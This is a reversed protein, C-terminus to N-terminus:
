TTGWLARSRPGFHNFQYTIGLAETYTNHEFASSVNGNDFIDNAEVLIDRSVDPDVSSVFLGNGSDHLATNRVTINEGKEIWLAAANASYSQTSGSDDV